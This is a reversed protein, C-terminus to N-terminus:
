ARNGFSSALVVFVVVVTLVLRRTEGNLRSQGHKEASHQQAHMRSMAIGMPTAMHSAVRSGFRTSRGGGDLGGGGGM